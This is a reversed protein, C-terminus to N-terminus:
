IVAHGGKLRLPGKLKILYQSHTSTTSPITLVVRWIAMPKVRVTLAFRRVRM